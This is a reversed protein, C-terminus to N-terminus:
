DWVIDSFSLFFLVLYFQRQAQTEEYTTLLTLRSYQLVIRPKTSFLLIRSM